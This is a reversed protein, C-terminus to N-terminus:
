PFVLWRVEYARQAREEAGCSPNYPKRWPMRRTDHVTRYWRLLAVRMPGPSSIIHISKSHASVHIQTDTDVKDVDVSRPRVAGKRKVHQKKVRKKTKKSFSADQFDSDEGSGKSEEFDSGDGESDLDLTRRRKPM